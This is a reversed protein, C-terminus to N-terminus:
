IHSVGENINRINQGMNVPFRLARKGTSLIYGGRNAIRIAESWPRKQTFRLKSKPVMISSFLKLKPIEKNSEMLQSEESQHSSAWMFDTKIYKRPAWSKTKPEM